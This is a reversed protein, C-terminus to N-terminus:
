ALVRLDSSQAPSAAPLSASHKWAHYSSRVLPGSEVYSFGQALAFTEFEKFQEPTLYEAIPLQSSSPRLYQGITLIDVNHRAIAIILEEVEQKSEGLGVMFGCKTKPGPGRPSSAIQECAIEKAWSLINLSRELQAGPRVQRYLRPVTEVNHNLIAVEGSSLITELLQRRGRLDPILLEIRCDPNAHRIARVTADFHKAGMDPLDDRNVSTVVVHKLGLKAVAQAVRLPEFPNLEQLNELTGDKVSCFGCRRTCLDGMIMFTATRNHWCEGQNPCRAEECVTVLGGSRVIQQTELFEPSGGAKARLWAPRKASISVTKSNGAALSYGSPECSGQKNEALIKKAFFVDDPSLELNFVQALAALMADKVEFMTLPALGEIKRVEAISTIDEGNGGCPSIARFYNLDTSVNLSLGHYSVWRKVGVGISAIKKWKPEEANAPAGNVWVGTLGSLQYGMIGFQGLAVIIAEELKRLFSHVDKGHHELDFLPYLVLQGPGHFTAQGGRSVEVWPVRNAEPFDFGPAKASEPPVLRGVTYVPDHEVVLAADTLAWDTSEVSPLTFLDTHPEAKSGRSTIRYELLALQLSLTKHYEERGLDWVKLGRTM